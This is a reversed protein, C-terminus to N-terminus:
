ALGLPELRSEAQLHFKLVSNRFHPRVEAVLAARSGAWHPPDLVEDVLDRSSKAQM